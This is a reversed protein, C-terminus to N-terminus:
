KAGLFKDLSKANLWKSLHGALEVNNLEAFLFHTNGYIGIKPLEVLTADGGHRNVTNVFQRGLELRVRWNEAGLDDSINDAEPIYDGFYIIIPIKTLKIFEETPVGVGRLAGTKSPLTEPVEEEPFLYNGPEYSVVAAIKDTVTAALWGPHGGQSHTVLIGKGSRDFVQATAQSVLVPDFAGTNPTMWRFFQELSGADQPFQVGEAYGPSHGQWHGMRWIEFWMQEDAVPTIQLPTTSRGAQGRRPQDILYTAFGRKLFINQFGDRGDPTTQWSRASQGAGHLFVLSLERPNLPIQYFVSAHDGHLTQGEPYPQWNNFNRSAYNGPTNLVTGGASFSGQEKIQMIGSETNAGSNSACNIAALCSVLSFLLKATTTKM